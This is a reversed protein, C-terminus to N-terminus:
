LSSTRNSGKVKTEMQDKRRNGILLMGLKCCLYVLLIIILITTVYAVTFGAVLMQDSNMEGAIDLISKLGYVIIWVCVIISLLYFLVKLRM